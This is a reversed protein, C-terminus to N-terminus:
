ELTEQADEFTDEDSSIGLGSPLFDKRDAEVNTNVTLNNMSNSLSSESSDTALGTDGLEKVLDCEVVFLSVGKSKSRALLRIPQHNLLKFINVSIGLSLDFTNFNIFPAFIELNYIKDTTFTYNQRNSSKQFFKRREAYGSDPIGTNNTSMDSGKTFLLSNSEILEDAGGWTWSNLIDSPAPSSASRISMSPVSQSSFQHAPVASEHEPFLTNNSASSSQLPASAALSSSLSQKVKKVAETPAPLNKEAMQVGMSNMACVLPSLFWPQEAYLDSELAPDIVTAFKLAIWSGTPPNVKRDFTVGFQLDDFPFDEKFRGSVQLSFQRRRDGFYDSNKLPESNDAYTPAFGNFDKVRFTVYGSFYPSDVYMPKSDDNVNYPALTSTSPGIRVRLKREAM